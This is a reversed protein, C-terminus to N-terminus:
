PIQIRCARIVIHRLRVAVIATIFHFRDKFPFRYERREKEVERWRGGGGEVERWREGGRELRTRTLTHPCLPPRLLVRPHRPSHDSHVGQLAGEVEEGKLIVKASGGKGGRSEGVGGLGLAAVTYGKWRGRWRGRWRGNWKRMKTRDGETDTIFAILATLQSQAASL